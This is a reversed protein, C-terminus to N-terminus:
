PADPIEITGGAITLGLGEVYKVQNAIIYAGNAFITLGKEILNEAQWLRDLDKEYNM